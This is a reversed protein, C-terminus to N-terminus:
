RTTTGDGAPAPPPEPTEGAPKAKLGRFPQMGFEALKESRIGYHAKLAQRLLNALRDSETFLAKLTKSNEQKEALLAAQKALADQTQSSLGALRLRIAEFDNLEESNAAVSAGLQLLRGLKGSYTRETAM